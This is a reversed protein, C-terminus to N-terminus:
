LWLQSGMQDTLEAIWHIGSFGVREVDFEFFDPHVSLEAIGRRRIQNAM